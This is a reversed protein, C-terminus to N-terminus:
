SELRIINRLAMIFMRLLLGGFFEKEWLHRGM